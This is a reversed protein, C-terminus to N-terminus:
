VLADAALGLQEACSRLSAEQVAAYAADMDMVKCGLAKQLGDQDSFKIATTSQSSKEIGLNSQFIGAASMPLFDENTMPLAVLINRSVLEDLASDPSVTAASYACAGIRYSFYVLRQRRLSDWTNPFRSFVSSWIKDKQSASVGDCCAAIAKTAKDLLDDYLARGRATVAAGREEIEGFRAKHCGPELGAGGPFSTSEELALFSTQRLLIPCQRSPPGEIREKVDIRETCMRMQAAEIDLTRPTLHNIHASQFCAIDALIPHEDRLKQYVAKPAIAVSRWGFMKMSEQVFVAADKIRLKGGQSEAVNLLSMLKASFINRKSLLDLALDRSEVDKLLDPRLLTTFVRFRNRELSAAKTPRFCTAHM